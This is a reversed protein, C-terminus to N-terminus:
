LIDSGSYYAFSMEDRLGFSIFVCYSPGLNAHSVVFGIAETALQLGLPLSLLPVILVLALVLPLLPAASGAGGSLCKGGATRGGRRPVAATRGAPKRFGGQGGDEGIWDM